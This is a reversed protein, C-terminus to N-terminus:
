KSCIAITLIARSHSSTNDFVCFWAQSGAPDPGNYHLDIDLLADNYDRHGCGGSVLYPNTAPCRAFVGWYTQGALSDQRVVRTLMGNLSSPGAAGTAGAPGTPGTPGTLGTLGRPGTPGAPGTPGTAGTPGTPGAPGVSMLNILLQAPQSTTTSEKSDVVFEAASGAKLVFGFNSSPLDVWQKVIATVDAYVFQNAAQVPVSTLAASAPATGDTITAETWLATATEIMLLGPSNVRNVYLRLTANAVNVSTIRPLGGLDFQLFGRAGQGVTITSMAGYNKAIDSSRTMADGVLVADAGFAAASSLLLGIMSKSMPVVEM